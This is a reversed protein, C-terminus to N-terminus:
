NSDVDQARTSPTSLFTTAPVAAPAVAPSIGRFTWYSNLFYNVLMAPAIAILQHVQPPTRPFVLSLFVFTSFSVAMGVLAAAHFKLGRIQIRDSIKRWRFTWYNNLVFNSIISIEVAVPSALYKNVGFMVLLTFVGLNVAVGSLGVLSYKIFTKSSHFRIWWANVVFEVIDSVGLKSEGRTREIFDVPIERVTAGVAVAAHLLAVQFAYGQVRLHSFDIKKLITTRIARFGATCDHVQRIGAVYRAVFNGVMSNLRRHWGWEKPLTGGAIYRSGIAFDAGSEIARLLLPIDSPKHSLDADMEFVVDAGLEYVAYHMGRIYAAGLGTKRGNLLHVNDYTRQLDRVVSATGDPSADDVVLIHCDHEMRAFQRQVDPVLQRINDRENYTPNIVVIKMASPCDVRALM